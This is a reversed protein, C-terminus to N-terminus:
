RSKLNFSANANLDLFERHNDLIKERFYTTVIKILEDETM